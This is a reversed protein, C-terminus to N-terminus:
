QKVDVVGTATFTSTGTGLVFVHDGVKVQGISSPAGKGSTRMRVKTASNVVFTESTNDAAKVTISTPSVATVSASGTSPQRAPSRRM